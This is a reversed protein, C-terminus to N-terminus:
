LVAVLLLLSAVLSLAAGAYNIERACKTCVTIAGSPFGVLSWLVPHCLPWVRGEPLGTGRCNQCTVTANM